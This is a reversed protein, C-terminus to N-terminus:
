KEGQSEIYEQIQTETNESATAIFYTPSWLHGGWLKDMIEPHQTMLTRASSGKLQKVMTPINQRPNTTILLHVHDDEGNITEIKYTKHKKCINHLINYLDDRIPGQTIVKRRYKTCFVLHYEIAYVTTRSHQIEM